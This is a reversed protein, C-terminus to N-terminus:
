TVKAIVIIIIVIDASMSLASTKSLASMDRLLCLPLIILVATWIITFERNVWITGGM